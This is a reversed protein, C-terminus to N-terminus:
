RSVIPIKRVRDHSMLTGWHTNEGGTPPSTSYSWSVGKIKSLENSFIDMKGPGGGMLPVMLINDKEFGLDKSRMFNMQKGILLLGMLLCVSITFQVVVLGKRLFISQLSTTVTGSKLTTSPRFKTIIFAPYLGAFLSTILIGGILSVVLVPSDFFDFSLQKESLSNIYPLALKTILIAAVTSLSVLLLSESLFQLILQFRGAGIAKRVGIEKARNLSQATSLNIFNICALILVALGVSGFFYLWTTNIAKVWQGGGAYKANFHVDSLPQIELEVRSDKGMWQQNNAFRDYIGQLSAMLGKGPKVGEPLVIFTSGGSVSGYHRTNAGTYKANDALSLLMSAPLHTNAPFDKIVGGVTITFENNYLFTKNLPNENGFFKKAASETLVAHYPQM